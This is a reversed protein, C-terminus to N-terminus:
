DGLQKLMEDYEDWFLSLADIESRKLACGIYTKQSSYKISLTITDLFGGECNRSLFIAGDEIAIDFGLDKFWALSTFNKFAFPSYITTSPNSINDVLIKIKKDKSKKLEKAVSSLNEEGTLTLGVKNRANKIVKITRDILDLEQQNLYGTTDAGLDNYCIFNYSILDIEICYEDEYDSEAYKYFTLKSKTHERSYGKALWEDYITDLETQIEDNTRPKLVGMQLRKVCKTLDKGTINKNFQELQPDGQDYRAGCLECGCVTKYGDWEGMDVQDYNMPYLGCKPCTYDIIHPYSYTEKEWTDGNPFTYTTTYKYKPM